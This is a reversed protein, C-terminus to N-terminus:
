DFWLTASIPIRRRFPEAKEHKYHELEIVQHAPVFYALFYQRGAATQGCTVFKVQANGPLDM